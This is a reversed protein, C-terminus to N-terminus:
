SLFYSYACSSANKKSNCCCVLLNDCIGNQIKALTNASLPAIVLLDAWKRLEIHLVPDGRKQFSNWEDADKYVSIPNGFADRLSEEFDVFHRANETCVVRVNAFRSIGTVIEPVKIAAVSGSVGVLVNIRSPQQESM